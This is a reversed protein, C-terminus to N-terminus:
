HRGFPRLLKLNDTGCQWPVEVSNEIRIDLVNLNCQVSGFLMCSRRLVFDGAVTCLENVCILVLTLYTDKGASM